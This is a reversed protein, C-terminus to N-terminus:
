GGGEHNLHGMEQKLVELQKELDQIRQAMVQENLQEVEEKAEPQPEPEQADQEAMRAAGMTKLNPQIVGSIAAEVPQLTEKLDSATNKLSDRFAVSNTSVEELGVEKKWQDMILSSVQRLKRTYEGIKAGIAPLREPGFIILGLILIFVIELGNFNSLFDM